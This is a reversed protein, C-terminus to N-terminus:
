TACWDSRQVTLRRAHLDVDQWELAVIDGLRLDADGGLLVRLYAEPSRKQAVTLLREYEESGHFGL